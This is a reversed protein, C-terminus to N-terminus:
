MLPSLRVFGVAGNWELKEIMREIGVGACMLDYEGAFLLIPVKELLKPLLMVAPVSNPTWFHGGVVGNCQEWQRPLIVEGHLAKM